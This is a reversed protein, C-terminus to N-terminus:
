DFYWELVDGPDTSVLAWFLGYGVAFVALSRWPLDRRRLVWRWLALGLLVALPSLMSIVLGGGVLMHHVFFDLDKPDPRYPQPWHGLAFWARLPYSYLLALGLWPVAAFVAFVPDLKEVPTPQAPLASAPTPQPMAHTEASM